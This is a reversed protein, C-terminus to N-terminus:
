CKSQDSIIGELGGLSGGLCDSWSCLLLNDRQLVNSMTDYADGLGDQLRWAVRLRGLINGCRGM